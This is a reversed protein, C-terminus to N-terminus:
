CKKKPQRLIYMLVEQPAKATTTKIYSTPQSQEELQAGWLYVDSDSSATYSPLRTATPNDDTFAVVLVDIGSSTSTSTFSCRYWGNSVDEIKATGGASDTVVGTSINFNAYQSTGFAGNSHTLQIIDPANAGDGKKAFISITWTEGSAISPRFNSDTNMYHASAGSETMVYSNTDNAPTTISSEAVSVNNFDYGSDNDLDESYAQENVSQGELLLGAEVWQGDIYKHDIRAVNTSATSLVGSANFFTASSARSDFSRETPFYSTAQSGEEVQAGWIYVNSADASNFKPYIAAYTITANDLTIGIRYWGNGVNEVFTNKATGGSIKSLTETSFVFRYNSNTDIGATGLSTGQLRITVQDDSEYQKVFLSFTVDNGSTLSLSQEVRDFNSGGAKSTLLDASAKGDPAIIQNITISGGSTANWNSTSFDESSTILNEASGELLLGAETLVGDVYVYTDSRAVDVSATQILGDSGLFTAVSDRDSFTPITPIYSTPFSAEEMQAGWILIGSEGDGTYGVTNDTPTGAIYAAQLGVGSQTRTISCRYWGNGYDEIKATSTAGITGLEGTSLNFWSSDSSGFFANIRLFNYGNAKAFISFTYTVGSSLVYAQRISPSFDGSPSVWADASATGNPSIGKNIERSEEILLGEHVGASSYNPRAQGATAEQVLGNADTYTGISARSFTAGVSALHSTMDEPTPQSDFQLNLSPRVSPFNSMLYIPLPM